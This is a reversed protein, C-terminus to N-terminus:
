RRGMRPVDPSSRQSLFDEKDRCNQDKEAHREAHQAQDEAAGHYITNHRDIRQRDNGNGQNRKIRMNGAAGDIQIDRQNVANQAKQSDEGNGAIELLTKLPMSSSKM